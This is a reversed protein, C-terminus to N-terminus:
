ERRLTFALPYRMWLQYIWTMLATSVLRGGAKSWISPVTWSDTTCGLTQRTDLLCKKIVPSWAEWVENSISWAALTGFVLCEADLAAPGETNFTDILATVDATPDAGTAARVLARAARARTLDSRTTGADRRAEIASVAKEIWADARTAVGPSTEIGAQEGARIALVSWATASLAHPADLGRGWSGDANQTAAVHAVAIRAAAILDSPAL